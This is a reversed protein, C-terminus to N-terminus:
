RGRRGFSHGAPAVARLEAVVRSRLDLPPKGGGQPRNKAVRDEPATRELEHIEFVLVNVVGERRELRGRARALPSARVVARHREYVHPPVILNVTGREDELLMFVIGRATEPRQRAVVM